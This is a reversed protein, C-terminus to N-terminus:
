AGGTLLTELKRRAGSVVPHGHAFLMKEFRYDLLGALSRRLLKADTCYKDPLLSFGEEALNIVADGVFVVGGDLATFIASEGPAGGPLPVMDFDSLEASSTHLFEGDLDLGLAERADAHAYIPISFRAKFSAAARTHNGSTLLIADPTARTALEALPEGALEIPDVFYLRGDISLASACLDVRSESSYAEWCALLNLRPDATGLETYEDAPRMLDQHALPFIQREGKFLLPAYM